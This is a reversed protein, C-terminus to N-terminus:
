GSQLRIRDYIMRAREYLELKEKEDKIKKYLNTLETYVQMAEAVRNEILLSDAKRLLLKFEHVRKDKFHYEKAKTIILGM